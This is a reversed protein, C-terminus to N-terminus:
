GIGNIRKFNKSDWKNAINEETSYEVATPYLFLGQQIALEKM